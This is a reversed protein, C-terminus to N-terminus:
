AFFRITFSDGRGAGLWRDARDNRLAIELYEVSNILVFPGAEEAYYKRFRDIKKEKITLIFRGGGLLKIFQGGEINTFLNGFRDVEIIHGQLTDGVHPRPLDLRLIEEVPPGFDGPQVGCSLHGAAPAFIDRGHFTSSVKALQLDTNKLEYVAKFPDKEEVLTLIGNDPAIYFYSDSVALIGKREGGVGPDVVGIQISGPPFFSYAAKWQYAAQIVDHPDIQHCIDVITVSKNLSLVVGKMIGVFPGESGFDTLMAVLPIPRM